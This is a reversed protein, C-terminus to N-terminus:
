IKPIDSIYRLLNDFGKPNDDIKHAQWQVGVVWNKGPLEIGHLIMDESYVTSILKSSLEKHSLGFKHESPITVWGSGGITYSLKGGPSIFVPHKFNEGNHQHHDKMLIPDGGGFFSNFLYMGWNICLIPINALLSENLIERAMIKEKIEFDEDSVIILSSLKTSKSRLRINVANSGYENIDNVLQDLITKEGNISTFIGVESNHLKNAMTLFSDGMFRAM